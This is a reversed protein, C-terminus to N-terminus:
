YSYKDFKNMSFIQQLVKNIEKRLDTPVYGLQSKLEQVLQIILHDKELSKVQLKQIQPKLQVLQNELANRSKESERLQGDLENVENEFKRYLGNEEELDM